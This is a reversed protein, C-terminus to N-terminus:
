GDIRAVETRIEPLKDYLAQGPCETNFADRHGSIVDFAHTAGKPYRSGSDSSTLTVKGRPDRGYQGLKWAIVKEIATLVLLQPKTTTYTGLAAVGMSNTNFGLTHAGLVPKDVGGARGEFITGCKDVLFNYGIDAWGNTVVHYRYIARVVKASDACPFNNGDASHHVFAAKITSTYKFAKDRISEDAGWGARSVIAPRAARGKVDRGATSPPRPPRHDTVAEGPDILELRLDRPADGSLVGVRVQVGDSRGAWFPETGGRGARRGRGRSEADAHLEHWASWVGATRTRVHVAVRGAAGPDADAWTVGLLSYAATAREATLVATRGALPPAGAGAGTPETEVGTLPLTVTSGSTGVADDAHAPPAIELGAFVMPVAVVISVAIRGVTAISFTSTTDM